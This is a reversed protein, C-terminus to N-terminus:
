RLVKFIAVVEFKADEESEWLGPSLEQLALMASLCLAATPADEFLGSKNLKPAYHAEVLASLDRVPMPLHSDERIRALALGWSLLSFSWACSLDYGLLEALVVPHENIRAAAILEFESRRLDTQLLQLLRAVRELDQVGAEGYDEQCYWDFLRNYESDAPLRDAHPPSRRYTGRYNKAGHAGLVNEGLILYRM